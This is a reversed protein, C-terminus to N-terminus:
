LIEIRNHIEMKVLVNSSKDNYNSKEEIYLNYEKVCHNNVFFYMIHFNQKKSFLSYIITDNDTNHTIDLSFHELMVKELIEEHTRIGCEPSCVSVTVLVNSENIYSYCKNELEEYVYNIMPIYSDKVLNIYVGNIEVQKNEQSFSMLTLIILALTFIQKM